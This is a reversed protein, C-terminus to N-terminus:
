FIHFDIKNRIKWTSLDIQFALIPDNLLKRCDSTESIISSIALAWKQLMVGKEQKAGGLFPTLKSRILWCFFCLNKTLYDANCKASVTQTKSNALYFQRM